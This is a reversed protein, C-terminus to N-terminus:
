DSLDQRLSLFHFGVKERLIERPRTGSRQKPAKSTAWRSPEAQFGAAFQGFYDLTDYVPPAFGIKLPAQAVATTAALALSASLALASLTRNMDLGGKFM